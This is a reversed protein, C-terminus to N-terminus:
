RRSRCRRCAGARSRPRCFDVLEGNRLFFQRASAAGIAAIGAIPVGSICIVDLDLTMPPIGLGSALLVSRRPVARSTKPSVMARLLRCGSSRVPAGALDPLRAEPTIEAALVGPLDGLVDGAEECEEGFPRPGFHRGRRVVGALGGGGVVLLRAMFASVM